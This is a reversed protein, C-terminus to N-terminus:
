AVGQGQQATTTELQDLAQLLLARGLASRSCGLRDAQAQLAELRDAPIKVPLAELPRGPTRYDRLILTQATM